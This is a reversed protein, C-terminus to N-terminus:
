RSHAMCLTLSTVCCNSLESTSQSTAIQAHIKELLANQAKVTDVLETIGNVLQRIEDPVPLVGM